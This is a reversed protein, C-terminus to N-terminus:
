SHQEYLTEASKYDGEMAWGVWSVDLNMFAKGMKNETSVGAVKWLGAFRDGGQMGIQSNWNKSVRLKSSAFDMICPTRDLAGTEPNKLLIVHAHTENIDYDVPKDQEDVKAQAAAQSPFAGLYGGGAELQRWVVFETKFTLSIAYIESGYNQGTLTNVFHGPECGAVYNAHHKDVENSMKQLLKIRPIAVNAGVNENGRGIGNEVLQLHAPLADNSAVMSPAKSVATASTAMLNEKSLQNM